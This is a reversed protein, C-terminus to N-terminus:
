PTADLDVGGDCEFVKIEDAKGCVSGSELLPYVEIKSSKDQSNYVYTLTERPEILRFENEGYLWVNGQERSYVIGEYLEVNESGTDSMFVLAFGKLENMQEDTLGAGTKITAGIMYNSAGVDQWCNYNNGNVREEFKVYDQYPLCETSKKLNDTVFPKILTGLVVAAGVTILIILVSAVVESVAKKDRKLIM